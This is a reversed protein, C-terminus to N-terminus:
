IKSHQKAFKTLDAKINMLEQINAKVQQLEKLTEAHLKNELNEIKVMSDSILPAMEFILASAYSSSLKKPEKTNKKKKTATTKM